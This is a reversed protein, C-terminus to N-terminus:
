FPLWRPVGLDGLAQVIEPELRVRAHGSFCSLEHVEPVGDIKGAISGHARELDLSLFQPREQCVPACAVSLSAIALCSVREYWHQKQPCRMSPSGRIITM